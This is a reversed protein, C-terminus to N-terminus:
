KIGRLIKRAGCKIEGKHDQKMREFWLAGRMPAGHFQIDKDTVYKPAEGEMVKGYYLYRAYPSNYIIDGSGIVTGQIGSDKLMGTQFPIYPDNNRLVESDIFYQVKTFAGNWRPVFCSSWIFFKGLKKPAEIKM